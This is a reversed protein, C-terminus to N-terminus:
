TAILIVSAQLGHGQLVAGDLQQALEDAM